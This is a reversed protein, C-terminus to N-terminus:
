LKILLKQFKELKKLKKLYNLKKSKTQNILYYNMQNKPKKEILFILCNKKVKQQTIKQPFQFNILMM